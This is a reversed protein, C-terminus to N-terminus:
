RLEVFDIRRRAACVCLLCIFSRSRQVKQTQELYSRHSPHFFFFYYHGVRTRAKSSFSFSATVAVLSLAIRTFLKNSNRSRRASRVCQCAPATNGGRAPWTAILPQKDFAHTHRCLLPHPLPHNSEALSKKRRDYTSGPVSRRRLERSFYIPPHKKSTKACSNFSLILTRAGM